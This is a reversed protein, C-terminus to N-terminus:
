EEKLSGRSSSAILFWWFIPKTLLLWFFTITINRNGYIAEWKLIKETTIRRKETEYHWLKHYMYQYFLSFLNNKKLIQCIYLNPWHNPRTFFHPRWPQFWHQSCVEEHWARHVGFQGLVFAIEVAQIACARSEARIAVGEVLIVM